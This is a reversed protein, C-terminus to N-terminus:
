KTGAADEIKGSEGKGVEGNKLRGEGDTRSNSYKSRAASSAGRQSPM